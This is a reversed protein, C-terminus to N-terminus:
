PQITSTSSPRQKCLWVQRLVAEVKMLGEAECYEALTALTKTELSGVAELLEHSLELYAACFYYEDKYEKEYSEAGCWECPYQKKEESM